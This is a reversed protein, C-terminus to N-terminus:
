LDLRLPSADNGQSAAPVACCILATDKSPDPSPRGPYAVHGSVVKTRCTGCTGDRCGFEPQLGSREALELLSGSAPLWTVEKDARAFIVPTAVTAPELIVPSAGEGETGRRQLSSPGFAEARIREDGINMARLGDYSQQMFGAPGCLYFDYDDFPLSQRLTGVGLRGLFEFELGIRDHPLPQSFCRTLILLGEAATQLAALESRFPMADSNQAGHFFHVPRRRGERRDLALIQEAIALMPTIGIGASLLVVPRPSAKDIVFDGQPGRLELSTGSRLVEWVATSTPGGRKVSIRYGAATSMRSLSYSVVISPQGSGAPLRLVLHMGADGDVVASGDAPSLEFSRVDVAEDTVRGVQFVRWGRAKSENERARAETWTGTLDAETSADHVAGRWRLVGRRRVMEDVHFRWLREAGDFAAMKPSEFLVEVTGTLQLVDGTRFNPFILGAKPNVLFNGLTNFFQNGKFDPVTLWDGDVDVFGVRGGRHSVDVSRVPEEVASAVFFTRSQAIALRAEDDLTQRRQTSEPAPQTTEHYQLDRTHIYQPCNGYARDVEITLKRASADSIHGNLRNRRRTQLEIGLLGVANGWSLAPTAPDNPDPAATISLHTDDVAALFGPQGELLTAWPRGLVDVIGAVIFPLRPYFARHQENLYPRMFATVVATHAPDVGARRQAELEGRHWPSPADAPGVNM